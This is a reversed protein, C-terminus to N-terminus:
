PWGGELPWLAAVGSVCFFCASGNKAHFTQFKSSRPPHIDGVSKLIETENVANGAFGFFLFAIDSM